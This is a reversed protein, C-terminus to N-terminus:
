LYVPAQKGADLKAADATRGSEAAIMEEVTKSLGDVVDQIANDATKVNAYINLWKACLALYAPGKYCNDMHNKASELKGFAEHLTARANEYKGITERMVEPKVLIRDNAAM